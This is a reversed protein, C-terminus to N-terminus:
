EGFDVETHVKVAPHVKVALGGSFFAERSMLDEQHIVATQPLLLLQQEGVHSYASPARHVARANYDLDREWDVM